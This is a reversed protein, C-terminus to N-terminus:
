RIQSLPNFFKNENLFAQSGVQMCISRCDDPGGGGGGKEMNDRKVNRGMM